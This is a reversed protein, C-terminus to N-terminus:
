LVYFAYVTAQELQFKLRVPHPPLGEKKSWSVRHRLDDGKIPRCNEFEFGPLEKGDIHLLAVKLQGQVSANVELASGNLTLPRTLIFGPADHGSTTVGFLRDLPLSAMGIASGPVDGAASQNHSHRTGGYYFRMEGHAIVPANATFVMGCDFDGPSGRSLFLERPPVREWRRGDASFVLEIEIRGEPRDYVQLLGFFLNGRHFVPMGYFEPVDAEDPILVIEPPTWTQLDQSEMVAIRRQTPGAFLGPRHHILWRRRLSDYVLSNHADSYPGVPNGEHETWETGNDSYALHIGDAELYVAVYRQSVGSEPPVAVVTIAEMRLGVFNNRKSGRFALLGLEPKVWSYGDESTAYCVLYSGPLGKRFENDHAVSYWCKFLKDQPDFLVTGYLYPGGGEWDGDKVIVPNRSSKVPPQVRRRVAWFDEVTSSELLFVPEGPQTSYPEAGTCKREPQV